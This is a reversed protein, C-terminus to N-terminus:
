IEGPVFNLPVPRGDYPLIGLRVGLRSWFPLKKKWAQIADQLRHAMSLGNDIESLMSTASDVNGVMLMAAVYNLKTNDPVDNRIAITGQRFVLRKLIHGAEAPRGLRMLCVARANQVDISDGQIRNLVTLAEAVHQEDLLERVQILLNGTFSSSM